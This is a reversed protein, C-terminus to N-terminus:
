RWRERLEGKHLALWQLAVVTTANRIRGDAIWEMAEAAPLAFARIDEHEAAMGHVGGFHASDFRACYLRVTESAGGPSAILEAMFVMAEPEVGAEEKVERAATAEPSEGADVIGAVTEVMWPHLGAAFAGMRFQETLGVADRAPDYLLVAAAHGREFVERTFTESWSGDFRKHRLTYRDIRFYGRFVTARDVIEVGDSTPASPM